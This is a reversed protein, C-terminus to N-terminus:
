FIIFVTFLLYKGRTTTQEKNKLGLIEGTRVCNHVIM